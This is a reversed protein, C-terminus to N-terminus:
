GKLRTGDVFEIDFHRFVQREPDQGPGRYAQLEEIAADLTAASALDLKRCRTLISTLLAAEDANLM